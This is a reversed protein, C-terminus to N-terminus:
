QEKRLMKDYAVTIQETAVEGDASDELEPPDYDKIWAEKLEWRVRAEGNEDLLVVAIEKRGEEVNGEEVAEAWDYFTTDDPKVGREMELDDFTTQGWETEGDSGNKYSDQETSRSPITVGRWGPVTKGDLEVKFRGTRMPGHQIAVVTSDDRSGDTCPRAFVPGDWEDREWPPIAAVGLAHSGPEVTDTTPGTDWELTVETSDGSPLEVAYSEVKFHGTKLPGHPAAIGPGDGGGGPSGGGGPRITGYNSISNRYSKAALVISERGTQGGTNEVTATMKIREGAEVPANTSTVEVALHPPESVSVTTEDRSTGTDAWIKREYQPGNGERYEGQETALHVTGSEGPDLALKTKKKKEAQNGIGVAVTGVGATEGTNTATCDACLPEGETVPGNTWDITVDLPIEPDTGGGDEVTVATGDQDTESEVVATYSDADGPETVWNLIEETSQGNGLNVDTVGRQQGGMSLTVQQTAAQEGTNEVLVTVTLTGGVTVPSNTGQITLIFSM